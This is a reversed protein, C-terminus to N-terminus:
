TFSCILLCVSLNRFLKDVVICLLLLDLSDSNNAYDDFFWLLYDRNLLNSEKSNDVRGLEQERVAIRVARMFDIYEDISLTLSELSNDLALKQRDQPLKATSIKLFIAQYALMGMLQRSLVVPITRNADNLLWNGLVNWLQSEHQFFGPHATDFPQLVDRLIQLQGFIAAL